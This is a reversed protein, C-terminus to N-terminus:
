GGCPVAQHERGGRTVMQNEVEAERNHTGPVVVGVGSTKVYKEVMGGCANAEICLNCLTTCMLVDKVM